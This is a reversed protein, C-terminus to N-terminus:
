LCASLGGGPMSVGWPSQRRCEKCVSARLLSWRQPGPGPAASRAGGQWSAGEGACSGAPQPPSPLLSAPPRQRRPWTRWRTAPVWAPGRAVGERGPCPASAQACAAGSATTTPAGRSPARPPSASGPSPARRPPPRPAPRPCGGPPADRGGRQRRQGRGAPGRRAARGSRRPLGAGRAPHVARPPGERRAPPLRLGARRAGPPVPAAAAAGPRGHRRSGVPRGGAPWPASAQRPCAPARPVPASAAAAAANPVRRRGRSSGSPERRRPSPSLSPSRRRGRGRGKGAEETPGGGGRTGAPGPQPRVRCGALGPPPPTRLAKPGGRDGGSEPCGGQRWRRQRRTWSCKNLVLQICEHCPLPSKVQSLLPSPTRLGFLDVHPRLILVVAVARDEM